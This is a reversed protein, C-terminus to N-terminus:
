LSDIWEQNAVPNDNQARNEPCAKVDFYKKLYKIAKEPSGFCIGGYYGMGALCHTKGGQSKNFDKHGVFAGDKQGQIEGVLYRDNGRAGAKKLDLCGHARCIWGSNYRSNCDQKLTLALDHQHNQCLYILNKM